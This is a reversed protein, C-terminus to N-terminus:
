TRDTICVLMIIFGMLMHVGLSTVFSIVFSTVFRAPYQAREVRMPRVLVVASRARLRTTTTAAAATAAGRRRPGQRSLKRIARKTRRPRRTQSKSNQFENLYETPLRQNSANICFAAFGLKMHYTLHLSPSLILSLSLSLSSCTSRISSYAAAGSSSDFCASRHHIYM